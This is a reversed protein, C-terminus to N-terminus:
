GHDPGKVSHVPQEVESQTAAYHQDYVPTPDLRFPTKSPQPQEVSALAARIRATMDARRKEAWEKWKADREAEREEDLGYGMPYSKGPRLFGTEKHFEEALDEWQDLPPKTLAFWESVERLAEVLVRQTDRLRSLAADPGLVESIAAHLMQLVERDVPMGSWQYGNRMSLLQPFRGGEIRVGRKGETREYSKIEDSM